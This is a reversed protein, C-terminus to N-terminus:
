TWKFDILMKNKRQNYEKMYMKHKQRQEENRSYYNRMYDRMYKRCDNGAFSKNKNLVCKYTHIWHQEREEKERKNNCPYKELEDIVWNDMGGNERIYQYKKTNHGKIHPHNCVYKHHYLRKAMNTTSGIYSNQKTEDDKHYMLYIITNNYNNVM